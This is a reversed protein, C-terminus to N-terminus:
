RSIGLCQQDGYAGAQTRFRFIERKMAEAAGRLLIWKNGERFHSNYAGVISIAVPTVLVLIHL